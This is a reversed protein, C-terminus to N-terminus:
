SALGGDPTRRLNARRWEDEFKQPKELMYAVDEVTDGQEGMHRALRALNARDDYWNM